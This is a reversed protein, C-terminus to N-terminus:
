EASDPVTLGILVLALLLGGIVIAFWNWGTFKENREHEPAAAINIKNAYAQVAGCVFISSFGVLSWPNPLRWALVALIYAAALPGAAFSGGVGHAQGDEGIRKFLLYAWLAGFFARWFPMIDSRDRGQILRWHRYMWYLKYIGFTVLSMLIVKTVGAAFLPNSQDAPSLQDRDAVPATPAAYPNKDM